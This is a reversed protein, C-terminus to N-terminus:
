KLAMASAMAWAASLLAGERKPTSLHKLVKSLSASGFDVGRSTAEGDASKTRVSGFASLVQQRNATWYTSTEVEGLVALISVASDFQSKASGTSLKVVPVTTATATAETSTSTSM